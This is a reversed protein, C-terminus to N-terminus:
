KAPNLKWIGNLMDSAYVANGTFAVGWIYVPRGQNTLAFGLERGMSKLDCRTVGSVFSDAGPCTELDGRIDLARVGANYYAAYLVGNKEDVSFNHTGAGDVHYFAVEKPAAFNSVDIVHIDGTSTSGVSGPGEQGVFAFRKGGQSDHYWWINHVQGGLPKVNGLVVPNEPTGGKGGGGIDWVDVGDNWLALLLIGDRINVDHVFPNGVERTFALRPNSLDSFDVIVIRALTMGRPDVSLFGYLKGNVRGFKATHVGPNTNADSYRAVQVPKRPNQINFLVVSGGTFETAVMMLTSDDSITVDGLTSAGSVILSDVLAPAEGSVDWINVKNGVAARTGWTTTYATTGRVAVEATYRATESGTGLVALPPGSLTTAAAPPSTAKDGGCGALLAFM